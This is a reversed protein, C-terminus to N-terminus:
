LPSPSCLAHAQRGRLHVVLLGSSTKSPPGTFWRAGPPTSISAISKNKHLSSGASASAMATGLEPELETGWESVTAWAPALHTNAAHM